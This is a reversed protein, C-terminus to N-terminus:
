VFRVDYWFPLVKLFLDLEKTKMFCFEGQETKGLLPIKCNEMLWVAVVGSKTKYLKEEPITSESINTVYMFM